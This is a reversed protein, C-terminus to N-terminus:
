LNITNDQLSHNKLCLFPYNWFGCMMNCHNSNAKWDGSSLSVHREKSAYLFNKYSKPLYFVPLWGRYFRQHYMWM